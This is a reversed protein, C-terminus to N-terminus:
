SIIERRERFDYGVQKWGYFVFIYFFPSYSIIEGSFVLMFIILYFVMKTISKEFNSYFFLGGILVSIGFIIGYSALLYIPMNTWCTMVARNKLLNYFENQSLIAGMGFFPKKIYVQLGYTISYVRAKVSDASPGNIDFRWRLKQSFIFALAIVSLFIFLYKRKAKHYAFYFIYLIGASVFGTMSKTTLLAINLILLKKWKIEKAHFLQYFIVIVIYIAFVAPEFFIGYNRLNNRDFNTYFNILLFSLKNTNTIQPFKVVFDPFIYAIMYCFVSWTSITVIYKCLINMFQEATFSMVFLLAVLLQVWLTYGHYDKNIIMSILINISILFYVCIPITNNKISKYSKVFMAVCLIMWFGCLFILRNNWLLTIDSGAILTLLILLNPIYQNKKIKNSISNLM